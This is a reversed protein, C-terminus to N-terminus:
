PLEEDRLGVGTYWRRGHDLNIGRDHLARTVSTATAEREGTDKCWQQYRGYFETKKARYNAGVVCCEELFRAFIDMESKYEATAQRVEDPEGLGNRKWDLCGRIAWNLIGPLEARLKAPLGKDKRDDGFTVTFPIMKIRRWIAFDQGRIGPKHNAALFLKHTPAFEFFDQKCKRARIRDGGTLQKLLSEAMRKGEEAEICAVFRRGFLDARETPHAEGQRVMLLEPISQMGYDGLLSLVIDIFTSKGNSGTGYLFFLVQERVDATMAYGVARQLYGVLDKNDDMIELMFRDWSPCTANADFAVPAMKTILDERRHERLQGTQLDITGNVVNFLWGDRDM